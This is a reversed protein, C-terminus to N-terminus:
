RWTWASCGCPWPPRCSASGWPAGNDVRLGQPRGWRTFAQRLEAQVAAAGVQSWRGVAFVKTHLIAGSFEDILRLWCARQGQQLLLQEVADMQWVAHPRNARRRAGGPRRGRPAPGLGARRFWRQLTRKSPLAQKPWHEQLVVRILGAGWSPHQRRLDLAEQYLAPNPWSRHWGCRGYSTALTRVDGRRFQRLLRRVSRPALALAAVIESAAQGRRWRRLVVHRVPVAIARPM